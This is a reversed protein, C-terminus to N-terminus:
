MKWKDGWIAFSVSVSVTLIGIFSHISALADSMGLAVIAKYVAISYFPAAVCWAITLLKRTM